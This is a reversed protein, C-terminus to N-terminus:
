RRRELCINSFATEIIAREDGGGSILTDSHVATRVVANDPAAGYTFARRATSVGHRASNMELPVATRSQVLAEESVDGDVRVYRNVGATKVGRGFRREFDQVRRAKNATTAVFADIWERGGSRPMPTPTGAADLLSVPSVFPKLLRGRTDYARAPSGDEDDEVRAVPFAGPPMLAGSLAYTPSRDVSLVTVVTRWAGTLNSRELRYSATPAVVGTTEGTRKVRRRNVSMEVTFTNWTDTPQLSETRWGVIPSAASLGVPGYGTCIMWVCSAAAVSALHWYTRRAILPANM